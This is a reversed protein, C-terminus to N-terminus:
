RGIAVGRAPADTQGVAGVRGVIPEVEHHAAFIRALQRDLGLGCAFIAIVIIQEGAVAGGGVRPLEAGVGAIGAGGEATERQGPRESSLLEEGAATEAGIIGTRRGPQCADGDTTLTGFIERLPQDARGLDGLAIGM